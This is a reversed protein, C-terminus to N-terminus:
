QMCAASLSICSSGKKQSHAKLVVYVVVITSHDHQPPNNHHSAPQYTTCWIHTYLHLIFGLQLDFTAVFAVAPLLLGDSRTTNNNSRSTNGLGRRYCKIFHFSIYYPWFFLCLRSRSGWVCVRKIRGSKVFSWSKMFKVAIGRTHTHIFVM